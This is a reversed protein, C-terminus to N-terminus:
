GKWPIPDIMQRLFRAVAVALTGVGTQGEFGSSGALYVGVVEMVLSFYAESECLLEHKGDRIMEVRAIFRKKLYSHNYEDDVIDDDTGQIILIRKNIPQYRVNKDNWEYLAKVWTLHIQRAALPDRNKQFDLYAQDHSSNRFARPITDSFPSAITSGFKAVTWYSSRILPAAMIIHRYDANFHYIAEIIASCGTSHGIVSPQGEMNEVVFDTVDKVARGYDRFSDIHAQKGDSLGHGPLDFTIVTYSNKLLWSIIKKNYGSHNNFGHVVIVSHKSNEPRFVQTFLDHRGGKIYGIDHMANAYQFGYMEKYQVFPTYEHDTESLLLLPKEKKIQHISVSPFITSINSASACAAISLIM